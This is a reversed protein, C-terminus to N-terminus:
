IIVSIIQDCPHRVEEYKYEKFRIGEHKYRKHHWLSIGTFDCQNCSLFDKGEERKRKKKKINLSELDENVLETNELKVKSNLTDQTAMM